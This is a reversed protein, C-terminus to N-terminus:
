MIIYCQRCCAMLNVAPPSPDIKTMYVLAGYYLKGIGGGGELMKRCEQPLALAEYIPALGAPYPFTACSKSLVYQSYSYQCKYDGGKMTAAPAQCTGNSMIVATSTLNQGSLGTGPCCQWVMIHPVFTHNGGVSTRAPEHSPLAAVCRSKPVLQSRGSNIFTWFSIEGM